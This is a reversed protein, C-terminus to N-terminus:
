SSEDSDVGELGYREAVAAYFDAGSGGAERDIENLEERTLLKEWAV